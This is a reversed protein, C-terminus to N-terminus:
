DPITKLGNFEMLTIQYFQRPLNLDRDLYNLMHDANMNEDTRTQARLQARDVRIMGTSKQRSRDYSMYVMSFTEKDATIQRMRRIAEWITIVREM